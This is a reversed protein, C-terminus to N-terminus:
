RNKSQEYDSIKKVLGECFSKMEQHVFPNGTAKQYSEAMLLLTQIFQNDMEDVQMDKTWLDIRLTNKENPDWISVMISKTEYPREGGDTAQWTIREPLNHDDLEVTFKIESKKM